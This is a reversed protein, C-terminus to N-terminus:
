VYFRTLWVNLFHLRYVIAISFLRMTALQTNNCYLTKNCLSYIIGILWSSSLDDVDEGKCLVDSISLWSTQDYGTLFVNFGCIELCSANEFM